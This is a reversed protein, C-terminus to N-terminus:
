ARVISMGEAFQELKQEMQLLGPQGQPQGDPRDQYREDLGLPRGRDDYQREGGHMGGYVQDGSAPPPAATSRKIRPQYPLPGGGFGPQGAAPTGYTQDARRQM